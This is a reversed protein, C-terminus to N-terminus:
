KNKKVVIIDRNVAQEVWHEFGDYPSDKLVEFGASEFAAEIEVRGIHYTNYAIVGAGGKKLMKYWEPAAARLLRVMDTLKREATSAHQVGYPLDTVFVHFQEKKYFSNVARTDGYSFQMTRVDKAKYHEKTDATTMTYKLCHKENGVAITQYKEEHKYMHYKLYRRLYKQIELISNKDVDIGSSNYGSILSKYLTTGRGCMPDLVWLPTDYKKAFDSSFIAVNLMSLTFDENTKGSYKLISALDDKFYTSKGSNMPILMEGNVEFLAYLSSLRLLVKRMEESMKDALQFCFLEIGGIEKYGEITYTEKFSAMMVKFESELLAKSSEFYRSNAHPLRLLGYQM